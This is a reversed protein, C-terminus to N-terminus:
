KNKIKFVSLIRHEEAQLLWFSSFYFQKTLDNTLYPKLNIQEANACIPIKGNVGM